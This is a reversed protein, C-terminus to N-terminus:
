RFIARLRLERSECMELREDPAIRLIRWSVLQQSRVVEVADERLDGARLAMDERRALSARVEHRAQTGGVGGLSGDHDHTV